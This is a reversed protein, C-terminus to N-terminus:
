ADTSLRSSPIYRAPERATPKTPIPFVTASASAIASAAAFPTTPSTSCRLSIPVVSSM